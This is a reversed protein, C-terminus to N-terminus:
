LKSSLFTGGRGSYIRARRGVLEEVVELSNIIVIQTGFLTAYVIDGITTHSKQRCFSDHRVM